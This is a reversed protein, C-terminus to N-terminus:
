ISFNVDNQTYCIKNEVFSNDEILKEKDRVIHEWFPRLSWIQKFFIKTTQDHTYLNIRSIAEYM